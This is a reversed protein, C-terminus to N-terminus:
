EKTKDYVKKNRVNNLQMHDKIVNMKNLIHNKPTKDKVLTTM